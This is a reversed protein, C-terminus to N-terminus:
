TKLRFHIKIGIAMLEQFLLKCAYPLNVHYIADQECEYCRKMTNPITGCKSCVIIQFQDSLDFLRENLFRSVGHSIMCDREMEGFRLGGEKSRGELPQRVLSQVSGHDRAHIKSAVLHKLRQYYTPGIFIQSRIMEGSLGNYMTENGYKQFGTEHLSQTLKDVINHSYSSFPTSHVFHGNICAGKAAVCELLQNITMRSPICQPNIIIDPIVGECTFPMDEQNFIMGITGKQASRSAAKDGIEPIRLYRLKVKIMLYGDPTTSEFIKDVYGEEGNRVVVSTDSKQSSGKKQTSVTKGVIVDNPGVYCGVNVIGRSDLKNYNYLTNRISVDPYEIIEHSNNNRKKEETTITRYTFCRFVGRDISSKNFIISDEQNYGGYCAIAVILNNGSPLDEYHLLESIHTQVIPKEPYQLCHVVTDCRIDNTTAYMGIAQKCMSSQYTIRPAQIHDVFPILNVCVGFMFTAHIEMYEHNETIESPKMAVWANEIEYSDVYVIMNKEVFTNWDYESERIEQCISIWDFDRLNWLPRMIRGDDSYILITRLSDEFMITISMPFIKCSRLKRFEDVFAEPNVVTGIIRGNLLVFTHDTDYKKELTGQFFNEILNQIHSSETRTSVKTFLTFNKVIGSSHGEPTNHYVTFDNGLFRGNGELQWGVYPGIGKQVISFSSKSWSTSKNTAVNSHINFIGPHRELQNFVRISSLEDFWESGFPFILEIDTTTTNCPIGLSRSLFRLDEILTSKDDNEHSISVHILDDKKVDVSGISDIIGALLELRYKRCNILYQYPITRLEYENLEGNETIERKTSYLPSKGSSIWKGFQYPESVLWRRWQVGSSKFLVLHDKVEQSLLLYDKLSIDVIDNTSIESLFKEAKSVSSFNKTAISVQNMNLWKLWKVRYVDKHIDYMVIKHDMMRLTLIHNSTVTHNDFNTNDTPLINYMCDQGSITKRVRTPEGKDDILLDGVVIDKALKTSGNWMLIPTEPDFCESPCVFGYQSCHIQRIKSNKGEKGIPILIRRLHSITSNFSLRSLIQSVGCRIYNSKPIGWNGTAFCTKIGQTIISTRNIITAVDHKKQVQPEIMRVFRKYLARFLESILYGATEFRKNNLHDRDDEPRVGTFTQLLKNIMYVLFLVKDSVNSTTGLHPFMDNNLVQVIYQNRTEKIISQLVHGSMEQLANEFTGVIEMERKLNRLLLNIAHGEVTVIKKFLSEIDTPTCGFIVFIYALPIDQSFFPLAMTLKHTSPYLRMQVLVSHGNEESTSRIEASFKYKQNPKHKFVYINNLNGREQTILVREKGRIIFYGGHDYKCEGLQHIENSTKDYLNCKSTGIMMPIRAIHIKPLVKHSKQEGNEFDKVDVDVSVASSYTLERIRAENPTIYKIHRKDDVIYPNDVYVQGFSVKTHRGKEMFVDISPEEDIITQIRHHIFHEFSEKQINTIVDDNKFHEPLIDHFLTEEYETDDM